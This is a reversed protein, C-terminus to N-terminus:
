PIHRLVIDGALIARQLPQTLYTTPRVYLHFELKNAKAYSLYDRLQRDFSQSAVDKVESLTREALNIGDPKLKRGGVIIEVKEGLRYLARVAIEGLAGKRNTLNGRPNPTLRAAGIALTLVEVAGCVSNAFLVAGQNPRGARWGDYSDRIQVARHIFSNTVFYATAAAGIARFTVAKLLLTMTLGGGIAVGNLAGVFANSAITKWVAPENLTGEAWSELFSCGAGFAGGVSAGILVAKELTALNGSPDNAHTPSNGVYRYLNADGGAFGITDESIFRGLSPSYYRARYYYLGSESDFERGTYTFRDINAPNTANVIRGFSDYTLTSIISGAANTLDHVTGLHDTLYWATGAGSRWRAIIEDSGDGFLYRTQVIGSSNYDAWAHQGDYVTNTTVPTQPGAGDTDVTKGIRRDMADYRYDASVLIIGGASRRETHTMRNRHDFRYETVEGTTRNTQLTLNGENDYTYDFTADRLLRNNEGTVYGTNTRNGTADYSFNEDTQTSYDASSLRM